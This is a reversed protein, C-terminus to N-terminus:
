SVPAAASELARRTLVRILHQRYETTAHMDGAPSMGDAALAAASAIDSGGALAQETATPRMPISGVNAMAIRGAVTAVGVIAWDNARRTFKEYGWGIGPRRPVRIAEILEDEALATEFYGIFFDEAPVSRAGSPGRLDITAGLAVVTMPLDAAPDSHALSGGITGRHRIQPDGIQAAAHALLGADRKVVDSTAIVAHPTAAGIVLEGADDSGEARIFNLEPIAAIDILVAPQALRVKMMPLLSHGGALLKADDGHQAMLQLVHDVSTARVYDFAAPIM